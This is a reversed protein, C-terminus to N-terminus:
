AAAWVGLALGLTIGILLALAITPHALGALRQFLSERQDVGPYSHRRLYRLELWPLLPSWVRHVSSYDCVLTVVDDPMSVDLLSRWERRGLRDPAPGLATFVLSRLVRQVELRKLHRRLRVVHFRREALALCFEARTPDDLEGIVLELDALNALLIRPDGDVLALAEALGPGSPSAPRDAPPAEAARPPPVSQQQQQPPRATAAVRIPAPRQRAPASLCELRERLTARDPAGRSRLFQRLGEAHGAFYENVLASAVPDAVGEARYPRTVTRALEFSGSAGVAPACVLDLDAYGASVLGPAYTSFTDFPRADDGLGSTLETLIRQVAWLNSVTEAPTIHEPVLVGHRTAPDALFASLTMAVSAPQLAARRDLDAVTAGFQELLDRASLTPLASRDAHDTRWGPWDALGLAPAATFVEPGGILAHGVDHRDFSDNRFRHLVASWEPRRVLCVSWPPRTASQSDAARMFPALRQDILRLDDDDLSTDIPGYGRGGLLNTEAWSYVVHFIKGDPAPDSM